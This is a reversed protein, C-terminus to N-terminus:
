VLGYRDVIWSRLRGPLLPPHQVVDALRLPQGHPGRVHVDEAVRPPAAALFRGALVGGHGAPIGGGEDAAQLPAGHSVRRRGHQLRRRAALVGRRVVELVPLAHRPVAERGLHRRLVEGVREVRRELATHDIALGGADHARVRGDVAHRRAGVSVQEGHGDPSAPAQVPSLSRDELL